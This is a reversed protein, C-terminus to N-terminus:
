KEQLEPQEPVEPKEPVEPTEPLTEFDLKFDKLNLQLEKSLDAMKLSLDAMKKNLEKSQFKKNLEESIRNLEEHNFTKHEDGFKKDLKEKLRAVTKETNKNLNQFSKNFQLNKNKLDELHLKKAKNGPNKELDKGTKELSKQLDQFEKGSFHKSMEDANKELAKEYAKWEPSNFKKEMEKGMNEMEKFHDTWEKSSYFDEMEKGVKEMEESVKQMSKEILATKSTDVGTSDENIVEKRIIIQKIAKPTTDSSIARKITYHRAGTRNNVTIITDGKKGPEKVNTKPLAFAVSLGISLIALVAILRHKLTTEITKMVTLRKIRTLLTYKKGAAAPMALALPNRANEQLALLARAYSVPNLRAIVIDDCCYERESKIVKSLIWAAPNFFLVIEFLRQFLNLLYDNRKIHALEHLLIAEVQEPSLNNVAAVPFIIIPKLCGITFPSSVIDTFYLEVTKSIQLKEKLCSLKLNWEEIEKLTKSKKIQAIAFLGAAYWLLQFILASFYAIGVWFTYPLVTTKASEIKIPIPTLTLPFSIRTSASYYITSLTIIFGGFLCILAAYYLKFKAEASLKPLVAEIIKVAAIIVLGQIVSIPITLSLAGFLTLVDM